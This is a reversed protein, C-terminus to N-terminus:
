VQVEAVVFVAGSAQLGGQRPYHCYATRDHAWKSHRSSGSALRFEVSGGHCLSGLCRGAVMEGLGVVMAPNAAPALWTVNLLLLKAHPWVGSFLTLLVAAIRPLVKGPMGKARWLQRVAYGYTFTEVDLDQQYYFPNRHPIGLTDFAMFTETTTANAWADVHSSLRLRWMPATQGYFFLGHAVIALVPILTSLFRPTSSAGALSKAPGPSTHMHTGNHTALPQEQSQEDDDSDTDTDTYNNSTNDGRQLEVAPTERAVLPVLMQADRDTKDDDEEIEIAPEENVADGDSCRHDLDEQIVLDRNPTLAISDSDDSVAM